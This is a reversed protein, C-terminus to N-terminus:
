LGPCPVDEGPPPVVPALGRAFTGLFCRYQRKPGELQFMVEHGDEVGDEAHQALVATVGAVNGSGPLVLPAGGSLWLRGALTPDLAPSAVDLGLALSLADAVPPPIYRDAVGQFMLLHRAEGPRAARGIRPAHVQADAGEGAWQLLNLAPDHAVLL